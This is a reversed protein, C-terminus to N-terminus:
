ALSGKFSKEFMDPDNCVVFVEQVSTGNKYLLKYGTSTRYKLFLGKSGRGGNQRVIRGPVISKVGEMKSLLSLYPELGELLSHELKLKGKRHKAM